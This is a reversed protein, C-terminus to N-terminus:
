LRPAVAKGDNHALCWAAFDDPPRAASFLWGQALDCGAKGLAAFTAEDEVGEAVTQMGFAHSLDVLSAVIKRDPADTCIRRVFAQDIKLEDFEFERLYTYPSYGTGFDDISLRCGLARLARMTDAAAQEDRLLASETLELTLRGAPVNWTDLAQEVLMPLTTDSLTSASLNVGVSVSLGRAQWAGIHRLSTNITFRALRDITEREECLAIIRAPDIRKGDRLRWRVLAEAADCRRDAIRVQPQFHVELENWSLARDLERGLLEAPLDDDNERSLQRIEAPKARVYAARATDAASLLAAARVGTAPQACAGGLAPQLRIRRSEGAGADGAQTWAIEQRLSDLIAHAALGAVSPAPLRALLIWVEERSVFAFRDDPQLLERLRSEVADLIRRAAPEPEIALRRDVPSLALTLLGTWPAGPRELRSALRTLLGEASVRAAGRDAHAVAM